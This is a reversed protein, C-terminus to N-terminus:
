LLSTYVWFPLESARVAALHNVRVIGLVFRGRVKLVSYPVLLAWVTVAKLPSNSHSLLFARRGATNM